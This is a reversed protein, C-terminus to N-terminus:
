LIVECPQKEPMTGMVGDNHLHYECYIAPRLWKLKVQDLESDTPLLIVQRAVKPYFREILMKQHGFDIRGLPTDMLLPFREGTVDFLAWLFSTALLQKMGESLSSVGISRRAVDLLEVKLAETVKISHVQRQSNMLVQWNANMQKGLSVFQARRFYAIYSALFDRWQAAPGKQADQIVSKELNETAQRLLGRKSEVAQKLYREEPLEDRERELRPLETEAKAREHLWRELSQDAEKVGSRELMLLEQECEFRRQRAQKWAQLRDRFQEREQQGYRNLLQLVSQRQQEGMASFFVGEENELSKSYEFLRTKLRELFTLEFAKSIGTLSPVFLTKPLEDLLQHIFAVKVESAEVGRTRTSAVLCEKASDTLPQDAVMPFYLLDNLVQEGKERLERQLRERDKRLERIRDVKNREQQLGTINANLAHIQEKLAEMEQTLSARRLQVRLVEAEAQELAQAAVGQQRQHAQVRASRGISQLEGDLVSVLAEIRDIGLLASVTKYSQDRPDTLEAALHQMDEGDFIYFRLFRAPLRQELAAQAEIGTLPEENGPLLVALTEAYTRESTLEWSRLAHGEGNQEEWSIQVSATRQGEAFARRNIIGEWRGPQGFIFERPELPAESSAGRNGLRMVARRGEEGEAGLFLLRLASIFSTKGYGNRGMILVVNRTEGPEKRFDFVTEGEVSCYSFLNEIRVELLANVQIM